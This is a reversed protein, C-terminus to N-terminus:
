REVSLLGVILATMEPFLIEKEGTWEALGVMILIMMLSVLYRIKKKAEM